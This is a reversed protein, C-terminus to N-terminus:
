EHWAEQMCLYAMKPGVGKLGMLEEATKPIDDNYKDRLVRSVEKIFETKRNHFGVCNILENLKEDPTNLISDITLGHERLQSMAKATM